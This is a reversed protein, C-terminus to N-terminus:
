IMWLSEINSKKMLAGVDQVTHKSYIKIGVCCEHVWVCRFCLDIKANIGLKLFLVNSSCSADLCVPYVSYFLHVPSVFFCLFFSVARACTWVYVYAHAVNLNFSCFLLCSPLIFHSYRFCFPLLSFACWKWKFLLLLISTIFIKFPM